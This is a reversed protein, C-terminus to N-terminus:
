IIPKIFFISVLFERAETGKLGANEHPLKFLMNGRTNRWVVIKKQDHKKNAQWWVHMLCYAPLWMVAAAM